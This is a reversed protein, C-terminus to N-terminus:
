MKKIDIATVLYDKGKSLRKLSYIYIISGVAVYVNNRHDICMCTLNHANKIPYESHSKSYILTTTDM